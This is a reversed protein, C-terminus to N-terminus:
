PKIIVIISVIMDIDAAICSMYLGTYFHMFFIFTTAISNISM